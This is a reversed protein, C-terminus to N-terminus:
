IKCDVQETGSDDTDADAYTPCTYTTCASVLLLISFSIWVLKRM